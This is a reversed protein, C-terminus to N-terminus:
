KKRTSKQELYTRWAGVCLSVPISLVTIIAAIGVVLILGLVYIVVLGLFIGLLIIIM